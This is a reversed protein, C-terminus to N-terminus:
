EAVPEMRFEAETTLDGSVPLFTFFVPATHHITIHVFAVQQNGVPPCPAGTWDVDVNAPSTWSGNYGFLSSSAAISKANDLIDARAAANDCIQQTSAYRGTDRAIQTLTNQTWFILGFQIIAALVLFLIPFVLAFEALSQGSERHRRTRKFLV